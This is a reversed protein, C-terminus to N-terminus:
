EIESNIDLCDIATNLSTLDLLIRYIEVKFHLINQSEVMRKRKGFLALGMWLTLFRDSYVSWTVFQVFVM